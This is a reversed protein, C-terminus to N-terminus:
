APATLDLPLHIGLAMSGPTARYIATQHADTALHVLCCPVQDLALSYRPLTLSDVVYPRQERGSFEPTQTM